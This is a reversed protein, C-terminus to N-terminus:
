TVGKRIGHPDWPSADLTGQTPVRAKKASARPEMNLGQTGGM